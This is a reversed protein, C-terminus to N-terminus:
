LTTVMCILSVVATGTYLLPNALTRGLVSSPSFYMSRVTPEDALPRPSRRRRTGAGDGLGALVHGVVLDEVGEVAVVRAWCCCTSAASSLAVLPRAPSM